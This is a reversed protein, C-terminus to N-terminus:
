LYNNYLSKEYEQGVHVYYTRRSIIDSDHYSRFLVVCVNFVHFFSWTNTHSIYACAVNDSINNLRHPLHKNFNVMYYEYSLYASSYDFSTNQASTSHNMCTYRPLSYMILESTWASDCASVAQGTIQAKGQCNIYIGEKETSSCSPFLLSPSIAYAEYTHGVYVVFNNDYLHSAYDAGLLFMFKSRYKTSYTTRVNYSSIACLEYMNLDGSYPSVFNSSFCSSSLNRPISQMTFPTSSGYVCVVKNLDFSSFSKGYYLTCLYVSSLGLHIINYNLRIHSGVYGIRVSSENTVSNNRVRINLIPSELKLNIGIFLSVHNDNFPSSISDSLLYHTRLDVDSDIHMNVNSIGFMNRFLRPFHFTAADTLHGALFYISNSRRSSNLWALLNTKYLKFGQERSCFCLLRSDRLYKAYIDHYEPADEYYTERRDYWYADPINPDDCPGFWRSNATNGIWPYQSPHLEFGRTLPTIIRDHKLGDYRFRIKDTIWENNILANLRPLIRILESGRSDIRINSCLSDSIDISETSVLEWPRATFSYPKSTLAGVPCSDVVNGIIETDYFPQPQMDRARLFRDIYMPIFLLVQPLVHCSFIFSSLNLTHLYNRTDSTLFHIDYLKKPIGGGENSFYAPSYKIHWSRNGNRESVVKTRRLIHGVEHDVRSTGRFTYWELETTGVDYPAHRGLEPSLWESISTELTDIWRSNWALALVLLDRFYRVINYITELHAAMESLALQTYFTREYELYNADPRVFTQMQARWPFQHLDVESHNFFVNGVFARVSMCRMWHDVHYNLTHLANTRFCQAAYGIMECLTIFRQDYFYYLYDDSIRRDYINTSAADYSYTGVESSSGRGLTGVISNGIVEDFFRVCRTCHICRTMISKVLPGFNKDSVVRKDYAFRGTDSGYVFALDQSDCEGGQDCIPCDSPHNLLLFEPVYERANRVLLSNTYIDMNASLETACSIVPKVSNAIEVVCIRCNGAISLQDHYRFRPVDIGILDRHQLVSYPDLEIDSLTVTFGNIYISTM